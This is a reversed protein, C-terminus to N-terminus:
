LAFLRSDPDNKDDYEAGKINKRILENKEDLNQKMWNYTYRM